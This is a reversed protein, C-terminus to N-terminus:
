KELEKWNASACISSYPCDRFAPGRRLKCEDIMPLFKKKETYTKLARLERRVSKMIQMDKEVIYERWQQTMKDEYVLSFVDISPDAVFYSHIQHLHTTYPGDKVFSLSGVGKVEVGYSGWKESTGRADMSGVLNYYENYVPVEIGEVLDAKILMLQWRLHRWTGDNFKNQLEANLTAQRPAGLWTFQQRRMCQLRASCAFSASRDRPQKTVLSNLLKVNEEDLVLGEPHQTLWRFVGPTLILHDDSLHNIITKLNKSM